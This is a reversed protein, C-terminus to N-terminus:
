GGQNLLEDHNFPFGKSQRKRWFSKQNNEFSTKAHNQNQNFQFRKKSGRCQIPQKRETIKWPILKAKNNIKGHIKRFWQFFFQGRQIRSRVQSSRLWVTKIKISYFPNQNFKFKEKSFKPEVMIVISHFFITHILKKRDVM